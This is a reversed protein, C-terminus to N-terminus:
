ENWDAKWYAKDFRYDDEKTEQVGFNSYVMLKSHPRIAKIGTAYGGSIELILPKNADLIIKQPVLHADPHEFNDLEVLHIIFAGQSCYFWKMEKKHAQWARIITTDAPLIEYMRVIPSMDFENFFHLGGREDSFNGGKIRKHYVM